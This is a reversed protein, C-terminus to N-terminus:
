GDGPEIEIGDAEAEVAIPNGRDREVTWEAPTWCVPQVRAPRDGLQELRRLPPGRFAPSVLLLDVNSWRNFDGRAVSGFVVARDLPLRGELRKVWARAADVLAAQEARRRRVVPDVPRV